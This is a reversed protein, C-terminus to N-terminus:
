GRLVRQQRVQRALAESIVIKSPESELGAPGREGVWKSEENELYQNQTSILPKIDSTVESTISLPEPAVHQPVGGCHTATAGATQQPVRDCDTATGAKPLSMEYRNSCNAKRSVSLYGAKELNSTAYESTRISVGCMKALSKHSPWSQRSDANLYFSIGWAINKDTPRLKRDAFVRQLWMDKDKLFRSRRKREAEDNAVDTLTIGIRERHRSLRRSM